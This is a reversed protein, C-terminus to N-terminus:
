LCFHAIAGALIEVCRNLDDVPVYEGTRHAVRIDGPGLVVAHAGMEILQPAETGFAITGAPNGTAKELFRVLPADAPNEMGGDIRLPLLQIEPGPHEKLEAEIASRVLELVYEPRQGPIPRWELTFHCEGPIINKATGGKILGVNITTYPPDFDPHVDEHLQRAIEEIRSILRSASYIASVGVAPYASHGERGTVIVEALCYGKGARMPRLSTPEGVIASKVRFPRADALRKAGICGIEEDATFILALPRQLRALDTKEVATLASAIFSKTDCAGRGVFRDGDAKLELADTWDAAFPVTDTHGVFALEIEGPDHGPGIVCILNIKEVGADDRYAMRRTEFGNTQLRRELYDIVGANPRSSTSDISVLEKLTEEVTM